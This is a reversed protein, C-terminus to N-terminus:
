TSFIVNRVFSFSFFVFHAFVSYSQVYGNQAALFVLFHNNEEKKQEVGAAIKERGFRFFIAFIKDDNVHCHCLSRHKKNAGVCFRSSGRCIGFVTITPVVLFFCVFNLKLKTIITHSFGRLQDLPFSLFIFAFLFSSPSIHLRYNIANIKHLNLRFM